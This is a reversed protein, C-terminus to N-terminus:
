TMLMEKERESRESTSHSVRRRRWNPTRIRRTGFDLARGREREGTQKVIEGVRDLKRRGRGSGKKGRALQLLSIFVISSMEFKCLRVEQLKITKQDEDDHNHDFNLVRM